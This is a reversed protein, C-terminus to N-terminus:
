PLSRAADNKFYYAVSHVASLELRAEVPTKCDIYVRVEGSTDYNASVRNLTKGSVVDTMLNNQAVGDTNWGAKYNEADLLQYTQIATGSATKASATFLTSCASALLM